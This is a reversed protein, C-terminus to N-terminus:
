MTPVQGAEENGPAAAERPCRPSLGNGGGKKGSQDCARWFVFRCCGCYFDFALSLAPASSTHTPPLCGTRGVGIQTEMLEPGSCNQNGGVVLQALTDPPLRLGRTLTLSEWLGRNQDAEM